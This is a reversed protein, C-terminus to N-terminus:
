QLRWEISDSSKTVYAGAGVSAEAGNIYFLWYKNGGGDNGDISVVYDGLSSAKTVTSPKQQKLLELATKGDQGQYAVTPTAPVSTAPSTSSSPTHKGAFAAYSLGSIVIVAAVAPAIIKQYKM